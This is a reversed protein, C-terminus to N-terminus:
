AQADRERSRLTAAAKCKRLTRSAFWLFALAVALGVVDLQSGASFLAVELFRLVGGAGMAGFLITLVIWLAKM